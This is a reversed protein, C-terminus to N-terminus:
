KQLEFNQAKNNPKLKAVTANATKAFFGKKQRLRFQKILLEIKKQQEFTAKMETLLISEITRLEQQTVEQKKGTDISYLTELYKLFVNCIYILAEDQGSGDEYKGDQAQITGQLQANIQDIVSDPTNSEQKKIPTPRFTSSNNQQDLVAQIEEELEKELEYQENLERENLQGIKNIQEQSINGGEESKLYSELKYVVLKVRREALEKKM